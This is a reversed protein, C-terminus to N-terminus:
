TFIRAPTLRLYPSLPLLRYAARLTSLNLFSLHACTPAFTGYRLWARYHVFANNPISPSASGMTVFLKIDGLHGLTVVM